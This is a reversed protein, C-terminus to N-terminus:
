QITVRYGATMAFGYPNPAAPDLVGWQTYLTLGALSPVNPIPFLVGAVGTGPGVTSMVVLVSSGANTLLDCGGGLPWPLTGGPWTTNQFDALLFAVGPAFADNLEFTFNTSNVLPANSSGIVPVFGGSGACGQGYAETALAGVYIDDVWCRFPMNALNSHRMFIQFHYAGTAPITVANSFQAYEFNGTQNPAAQTATYVLTNTATDYIRFEVRNVSTSPIPTTVQKEWMVRFGVPLAGAPLAVPPTQWTASMVSTLTYFDAYIATSPGQRAVRATGFGTTGLPDNFSIMTWSSGGQHFEGDPVLNQAALLGSLSVTLAFTRVLM